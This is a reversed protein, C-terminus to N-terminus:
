LWLRLPRKSSVLFSFVCILLIDCIKYIDMGVVHLMRHVHPGSPRQVFSIAQSLNKSFHFNVFDQATRGFFFDQPCVSM